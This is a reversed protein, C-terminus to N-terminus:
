LMKKAAEHVKQDKKSAFSISSGDWSGIIDCEDDYVNKEDDITYSVGEFEIEDVSDDDDIDGGMVSNHSTTSVLAETKEMQSQRHATLTFDPLISTDTDLLGVGSGVEVSGEESEEGSEVISETSEVISETSQVISESAEAAALMERLQAASLPTNSAVMSSNPCKAKTHGPQGCNGCCRPKKPGSSSKKEKKPKKEVVVDHWPILAKENDIDDYHHTPRSQNIFGNKVKGDHKDSETQHRNCLFQGEVKRCSCQARYGGKLWVAADCKSDDYEADCRESVSSSGKSVRPKRPPKFDQPKLDACVKCLEDHDEPFGGSQWSDRANELWQIAEAVSIKAHMELSSM